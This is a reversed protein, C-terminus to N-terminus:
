APKAHRYKHNVRNVIAGNWEGNEILVELEKGQTAELDYREGSSLELGPYLAKFYGQMFGPAKSNFNWMVIAGAINKDKVEGTEPNTEKITTSGDDANQIVTVEVIYNTSQQDKSLKKTVSDIRVRYWAPPLLIGRMLDRDTFEVHMSM